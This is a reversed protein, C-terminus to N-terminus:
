ADGPTKLLKILHCGISRWQIMEDRHLEFRDVAKELFEVETLTGKQGNCSECAWGFNRPHSRGGRSRPWIHDVEMECVPLHVGCYRCVVIQEPRFKKRFEHNSRM